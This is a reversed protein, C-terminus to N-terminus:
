VVGLYEGDEFEFFKQFQCKEGRSESFPTLRTKMIGVVSVDAERRAYLDISLGAKVVRLSTCGLGAVVERIVEEAKM